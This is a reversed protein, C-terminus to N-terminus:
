GPVLVVLLDGGSVTEGESVLVEMVKGAVGATISTEMKMAETVLLTDGVAVEQGVQCSLGVIKGPMSAGVHSPNSPDAKPRLEIGESASVDLVSIERPQGNLEFYVNRQGDSTLGGVAMLKVVLTKGSEIELTIQEGIRMGYLFAPTPLADVQGYERRFERYEKYVAPYLADSLLAREPADLGTELKLRAGAAEFDHSALDIGARETLPEIGKLVAKQLRPPFGQYPQGLRGAMFDVVSQPFDLSDATSICDEVSLNNQVLFMAFDAVVKSTPTVKILGGLADSVERYTTKLDNWRDGLGLQIARPRFNSYQGGPIQHRYVDATAAKLGSEFPWYMDRVAEWYDALGQLAKGDVEPALPDGLMAAALANASPQSTLGSMSSLACDVADVGAASAALLMAIGNGSTDHTHLHIPVAVENRLATILMTAAQPKLLGAMDKIAIIHAGRAEIAKALAVYYALDYKTEGPDSVDGSYCICAEVIKGAKAVEEMAIEMNPLWNLADFIRFIDIGASAAEQVFRRIVNDPYNTYGVGNAGRLLMQFLLNPISQRLSALREWPDEKLFRYAVDFTAGGWM